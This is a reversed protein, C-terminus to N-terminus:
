IGSKQSYKEKLEVFILRVPTKTWITNIIIIIIIIIVCLLANEIKIEQSMWPHLSRLLIIWQQFAVMKVPPSGTMAQCPEAAV